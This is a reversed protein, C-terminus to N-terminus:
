PSVAISRLATWDSYRGDVDRARVRYYYTAGRSVTNDERSTSVENPLVSVFDTDQTSNAVTTRQVEYQVIAGTAADWAITVVPPSTASSPTTSSLRVNKPLDVGGSTLALVSSRPGINGNADQAEIEYYYTTKATLGTDTFAASTSTGVQSFPGASASARYVQYRSIGTLDAGNIDTTPAKWSISLKEPDGVVAQGTLLTPAAPPRIDFLVTAGGFASRESEGSATVASVQYYYATGGTVATDLYTTQGTTFSLGERGSLRSYGQDPRSSRYVNYGRLGEDTNASWNLTIQGIGGEVSLGGPAAIGWVTVSVSGSRTGENGLGDVGSVAYYYVAGGELGEDRYSREGVALTDVALLGEGDGKSRYVVYGGLGTLVGGDADRSPASWRLEVAASGEAGVASLGVPSGPGVEDRGVQAGAFVSRSSEGGGTVASVAYYYTEGGVVASDVYSTQGTTFSLGENGLLREYGQDPRLSRYVNYGRLDEDVSAGWLVRIQGVGGEVSLGGPAAIGATRAQSAAGLPGANGAADFALVTYSYATAVELGEDDLQFTRADVTDVPALSQGASARLVVFGALGTLDGGGADRAPASWNVRLRGPRSEDAVVWINQPAGPPSHDELVTAGEFGSLLSLVGATDVAAVRYYFTRGPAALSDVLGLKGTTIQLATDGEAQVLRYQGNSQEARFLAYGALRRSDVGQWSLRIFGIGGEASLGAPTTLLDRAFESQPDLPNSRERDCSLALFLLLGGLAAVRWRRKMVM